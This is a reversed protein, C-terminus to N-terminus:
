TGSHFLPCGFVRTTSTVAPQQNLLAVLSRRGANDGAHARAGTVGGSFILAGHADYLLTQGSTVTGFERAVRGDVDRVVTVGPLAAATRWLDTREWGEAMRAPTMFLVFTKPQTRARAIAEALEGLSARTCTCQPHALMVLTPRDTARALTAVAPWADPARAAEGPTNDYTWLVWLGTAATALWIAGLVPVWVRPSVAALLRHLRVLVGTARMAHGSVLLGRASRDAAGVIRGL